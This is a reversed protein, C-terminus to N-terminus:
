TPDNGWMVSGLPHISAKIDVHIHRGAIEIFLKDRFHMLGWLMKSRKQNDTCQIDVADGTLHSSNAVGGASTNQSPTRLGSAISFPVGAIERAQDLIAVLEPKLGKIESDKFYKYKPQMFKDKYPELRIFAMAFNGDTAYPDDNKYYSIGRPKNDITFIGYDMCDFVPLGQGSLEKFLTHMIEHAVSKWLNSNYVVSILDKNITTSTLYGNPVPVYDFMLITKGTYSINTKFVWQIQGNDNGNNVPDPIKYNTKQVDFTIDWKKSAFFDTVMKLDSTVDINTNNLFTYKM